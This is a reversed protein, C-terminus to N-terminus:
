ESDMNILCSLEPGFCNDQLTLFFSSFHCMQQQPPKTTRTKKERKKREEILSCTSPFLIEYWNWIVGKAERPHLVVIYRVCGSFVCMEALLGIYNVSLSVQVTFIFDATETLPIESRWSAQRFFCTFEAWFWSSCMWGSLVEFPFRQNQRCAAAHQVLCWLGRQYIM